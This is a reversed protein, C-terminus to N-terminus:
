ILLGLGLCFLAGSMSGILNVQTKDLLKKTEFVGGFVSDVNSGVLGAFLILVSEIISGGAAFYIIAIVIGGFLAAYEGLLTIGGDTGKAVKKFTTIMVPQKKSYFGIESSLTDALAASVAGFFALELIHSNQPFVFILALMVLAPSSNGLVNLINRKEHKKRPFNSAVEGIIFFVVVAFLDVLPNPGYTIAALGVANGILIGEFDLFKMKYSLISFFALFALIFFLQVPDSLAM